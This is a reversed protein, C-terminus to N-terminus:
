AAEAISDELWAPVIPIRDWRAAQDIYDAVIADLEAKSTLGREVLYRRGRGTAPVDTIRVLGDVRQGRLVRESGEAAYRALDVPPNTARATM